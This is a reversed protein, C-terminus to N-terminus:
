RQYIPLFRYPIGLILIAFQTEVGNQVPWSGDAQQKKLLSDRIRPYWQRYYADGAQYMAQAAYYHQYYYFGGGEFVGEPQGRLWLLGKAVAQNERQGLMMLSMTGAATMPFSPAQGATYSFGGTAKDNCSLVYTVARQITTDPVVIGAEKASALAVTQMVTVSLDADTPTPAYRWGGAPNQSALIVRVAEKLQKQLRQDHSMGWAESLALTALAHEYMSQGMYGHGTECADLLFKVAKTLKEGYPPRDPFHGKVMFAMLGLATGAVRFNTGWSGDEKQTRALHELGAKIAKEAQPTLEAVSVGDADQALMPLVPPIAMVATMVYAAVRYRTNLRM